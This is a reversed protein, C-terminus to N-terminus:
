ELLQDIVATLESKPMTGISRKVEQGDKFFILTPISRINFQQAISGHQDVNLKGVALKDSYEQAVEEVIPGIIRCPGCWEAWFDVLVLGSKELVDSKFTEATLQMLNQNGM